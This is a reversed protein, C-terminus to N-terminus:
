DFVNLWKKEFVNMTLGLKKISEYAAIGQEHALEKNNVYLLIADYLKEITSNSCVFGDVMHTVLEIMGGKPFIISPRKYLKAENIVNSLPEEYISPVVLIDINDYFKELDNVHGIFHIRESCKSKKIIEVIKTFYLVDDNVNGGVYVDILFGKQLIEIAAAVLEYVGKEPVIRGIYGLRLADNNADYVIGDRKITRQPAINWIIADKPAQKRGSLRMRECIFSSICVNIDVLRVILHRWILGYIKALVGKKRDVIPADGMRFVVKAKSFFLIPSLYLLAIETPVIIFDPKEIHIKKGLVALTLIFNRLLFVFDKGNQNRPFPIKTVCFGKLEREFSDDLASNVFLHVSFRNKILISAVQINAREKGYMKKSDFIYFVKKEYM